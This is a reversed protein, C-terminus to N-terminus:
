SNSIDKYFPVIDVYSEDKKMFGGPITGLATFGLKEYLKIAAQNTHVVANYQMIRFGLRRAQMLSHRVLAEGIGCRQMEASVAYSANAIHGCRGINNPHLIYLGVVRGDSAVAVSTLSQSEFLLVAAREDLLDMQPFAAGEEIVANWIQVMEQLDESRWERILM